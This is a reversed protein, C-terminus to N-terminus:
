GRSRGAPDRTPATPLTKEIVKDDPVDHPGDEDPAPPAQDEPFEDGDSASGTGNRTARMAMEGTTEFTDLM